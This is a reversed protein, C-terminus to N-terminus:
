GGAKSSTNATARAAMGAANPTTVVQNVALSIERFDSGQCTAMVSKLLTYSVTKDGLITVPLGNHKEYGTLDGLSEKHAALAQTLADIPKEPAKLVDAVDAVAQDGIWIKDEDIMIFLENHPTVGSISDPLEIFKANEIKQSEGSNLLLFFVLITFIDMLAVLNLKPVISTKPKTYFITSGIM